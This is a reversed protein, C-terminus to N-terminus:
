QITIHMEYTQISLQTNKMNLLKNIYIYLALNTHLCEDACCRFHFAPLVGLGLMGFGINDSAERVEALSSVIM